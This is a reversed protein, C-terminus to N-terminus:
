KLGLRAMAAQMKAGADASSLDVEVIEDAILALKPPVTSGPTVVAIIPKDLLIAMGIEVAFKVDPKSSTVLSMVMASDQMKPVMHELVDAIWAKADPYDSWDRPDKAM